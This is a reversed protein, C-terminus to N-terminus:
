TRNKELFPFYSEGGGNKKLYMRASASFDMQDMQMTPLHPSIICESPIQM